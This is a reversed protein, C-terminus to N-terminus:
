VTITIITLKGDFQVDLKDREEKSLTDLGKLSVTNPIRIEAHKSNRSIITFEESPTEGFVAELVIFTFNFLM